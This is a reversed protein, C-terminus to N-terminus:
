ENQNRWIIKARCATPARDPSLIYESGKYIRVEFKLIKRDMRLTYNSFFAGKREDPVRMNKAEVKVAVKSRLPNFFKTQIAVRIANTLKLKGLTRNACFVSARSGCSNISETTSMLELVPPHAVPKM